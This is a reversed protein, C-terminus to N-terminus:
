KFICREHINLAQNEKWGFFLFNDKDKKLSKLSVSGDERFAKFLPLKVKIDMLVSIEIDTNEFEEM